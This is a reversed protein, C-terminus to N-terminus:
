DIFWEPFVERDEQEQQDLWDLLKEFSRDRLQESHSRSKMEIRQTINQRVSLCGYCVIGSTDENYDDGAEDYHLINGCDCCKFTEARGSRGRLLTTRESLERYEKNTLKKM